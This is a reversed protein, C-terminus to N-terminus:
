GNSIDKINKEHIKIIFDLFSNPTKIENENYVNQISQRNILPSYKKFPNELRLTEVHTESYYLPDNELNILCDGYFSKFESMMSENSQLLKVNKIYKNEADISDQDIYHSTDEEFDQELSTMDGTLRDVVMNNEKDVYFRNILAFVFLVAIISFCIIVVPMVKKM